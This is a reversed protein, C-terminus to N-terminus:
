YLSRWILALHWSTRNRKARKCPIAVEVVDAHKVASYSSAEKFHQKIISKNQPTKTNHLPCRLWDHVDPKWRPSIFCWGTMLESGWRSSATGDQNLQPEHWKATTGKDKALLSFYLLIFCLVWNGNKASCASCICKKFSWQPSAYLVANWERCTMMCQSSNILPPLIHVFLGIFWIEAM